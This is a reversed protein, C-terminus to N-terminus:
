FIFASYLVKIYLIAKWRSHGMWTQLTDQLHIEIPTQKCILLSLFTPGSTTNHLSDTTKIPSLTRNFEYRHPDQDFPLFLIDYWHQSEWQVLSVGGPHYGSFAAVGQEWDRLWVDRESIFGAIRWASSLLLDDSQPQGSM